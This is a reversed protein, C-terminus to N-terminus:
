KNKDLISYIFSIILPKNKEIFGNMTTTRFDGLLKKINKPPTDNNFIDQVEDYIENWGKCEQMIEYCKKCFVDADVESEFIPYINELLYNGAQNMIWMEKMEDESFSYSSKITKFYSKRNKYLGQWNDVGDEDIVDTYVEVTEINYKKIYEENSLESDPLFMYDHRYSNWTKFENILIMEKYFDDLNSGPMALILELPPKPFGQQNCRKGIHKALKIKEESSLDVRKAVKMAEDSVSQISVTPVVSVVETELWMNTGKEITKDINLNVNKGVIDFWADVLKKRRDYNTAKMSSIDTLQFNNEWAFKFIELDREFFVGFNADNLYSYRFGAKKMALIDKKVVDINKKIIKTGTGGGWECFVCQYPCGRTTELVVFPELKYVRAHNVLTTLLDIHDEYVSYEPLGCNMKKLSRLEWSILYPNPNKGTEIFYNLFDEIFVEGPKTPRCIYDYFNRSKLYDKEQTGIHPGGLICIVNPNKEKAIRAVTDCIDYNWVYSSLLLIDAESVEEYLEECSKYLNYKYPPELWEVQESYKGVRDYHSKMLMYTMCNPLIWDAHPPNIFGIKIKKQLSTL